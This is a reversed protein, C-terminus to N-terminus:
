TKAAHQFTLLGSEASCSALDGADMLIDKYGDTNATPNPVLLDKQKPLLWSMLQVQPHTQSKLRGRYGAVYGFLCRSFTTRRNIPEEIRETM